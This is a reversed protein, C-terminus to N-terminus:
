YIFLCICICIYEYRTGTISKVCSSCTMGDVHISCTSTTTCIVSTRKDENKADDFTPLSATFGMDEIADALEQPSTDCTKYGIYGANEELIVRISVVDPRDGIVSEINRVCSQCTMGRIDIKITSIDTVPEQTEMARPVRM